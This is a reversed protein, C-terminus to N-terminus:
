GHKATRESQVHRQTKRVVVSLIRGLEDAERVLEDCASKEVLDSDRALELWYGAESAERRAISCFRAFEADSIANHAERLNAGVGAGSRVLQRGLEWGIPGNPLRGVIQIAARAFRYTRELM